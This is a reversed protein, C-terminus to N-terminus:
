TTAETGAARQDEIMRGIEGAELTRVERFHQEVWARVMRHRSETDATLFESDIMWQDVQVGVSNVIRDCCSVLRNAMAGAVAQLVIRDILEGRRRALDIYAERAKRLEEGQKKVDELGRAGLSRAAYEDAVVLCAVAYSAEAKQEAKASPDRLIEVLGAEYETLPKSQPAVPAQAPASVQPRRHGAKPHNKAVWLVVEDADCWRSGAPDTDCPFGAEKSWRSLAAEAFGTATALAKNNLTRAM